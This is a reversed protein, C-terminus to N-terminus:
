ITWNLTERLPLLFKELGLAHSTFGLWPTTLAPYPADVAVGPRRAFSPQWHRRPGFGAAM